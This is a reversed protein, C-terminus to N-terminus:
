IIAMYIIFIITIIYITPKLRDIISLSFEIPDEMLYNGREDNGTPKADLALIPIWNERIFKHNEKSNFYLSHGGKFYRNYFSSNQEHIFGRRGADGLDILLLRSIILILDKTGCENVFLDSKECIFDIDDHSNLPSACFIVNKIKKSELKDIAQRTILTGFSHAIISVEKDVLENITTTIRRAIEDQKRRRLFPLSFSFADFFGYNFHIHNYSNSYENLTNSIIKQWGAYTRIGHVTILVKNKENSSKIKESNIFGEIQNFLSDLWKLSSRHGNLILTAYDYFASQHETIFDEDATLGIIFSPKIYRKKPNFIDELLNISTSASPTNGIKKPLLVDLVLIDTEDRLTLRADDATECIIINMLNYYEKNKAANLFINIREKNDDTFIIKIM